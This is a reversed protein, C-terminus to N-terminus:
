DATQGNAPVVIGLDGLLVDHGAGGIIEDDGTGAIVIDNDAGVDITDNGGHVEDSDAGSNVEVFHWNEVIQADLDTDYTFQAEGIVDGNDGLVIDTGSGTQIVDDGNGAIVVDSGSGTNITDDGGFSSEKSSFKVGNRDVTAGTIVGLDGIVVDQGNGTTVEDEGLGGIILNNGASATINDNGAISTNLSSAELVYLTEDRTVSGVDGIILDNGAGSELVDNGAGGIIIDIASEGKIIDNGGKDVYTSVIDPAPNIGVTTGAPQINAHDGVLINNGVVGQQPSATITDSGSGGIVTNSGGAAIIIDDGDQNSHVSKISTYAASFTTQRIVEGHDGLIVDSGEGGNLTDAGAGGLIIDRGAGGMINDSTNSVSGTFENAQAIFEGLTKGGDAGDVYGNDGILVDLGDGGKITDSGAGGLVIDQGFGGDISDDGGVNGTAEAFTINSAGFGIEGLDAVITDNGHEGFVTDKGSGAIILDDGDGGRITDTGGSSNSSVMSNLDITGGDALIRDDGMGGYITDSGLGAIIIDDGSEGYLTNTGGLTTIRDDGRGGHITDNGIGTSIVDDGAEGHVTNNGSGTITITDDGDGGYIVYNGNGVVIQDNGIGGHITVNSSSSRTVMAASFANTTNFFVKDDGSGTDIDISVGGNFGEFNLVDDGAGSKIVIEDVNSFRQAKDGDKYFESYVLIDNGSQVIRFEENGDILEGVTRDGAYDGMNLTLKGNEVNGLSLKPEYNHSFDILTQKPLIAWSDGGIKEKGFLYNFYVDFYVDIGASIKGDIEFLYEPTETILQIFESARIKGDENPDTLDASFDANLYGEVGAKFLFLNVNADLAITANFWAEPKERGNEYDAIYFGDLIYKSNGSEIMKTFGSTDYGFALDFGLNVSFEVDASLGVKPVGPVKAGLTKEFSLAFSPFHWLFLDINSTDGSLLRLAMMPDTLIPLSLGYKSDSSSSESGSLAGALAPNEKSLSGYPDNANFDGGTLNALDFEHESMGGAFPDTDSGFDYTGFNITLDTKDELLEILTNVKNVMDIFKVASDFSPNAGSTMKGIDLLSTRGLIDSIGPVPSNIFDLVPRIPDLADDVFGIIPKLFGELFEGVDLTIDRLEFAEVTMVEHKEGYLVKSYTHDFFLNTSIAPLSVPLNDEFGADLMLNLVTEFQALVEVMHKQGKMEDFTMMGDDNGDNLDIGITGTLSTQVDASKNNSISAQLIGLSASLEPMDSFDAVIKLELENHDVLVGNVDRVDHLYFGNEISFGFGLAMSAIASVGITGDEVSLGLGPFGLDADLDIDTNFLEYDFDITFDVSKSEVNDNGTVTANWGLEDFQEQLVSAILTSTTPPIGPYNLKFEELEQWLAPVIANRLNSVFDGAGELASGIVPIEFGFVSDTLIKDLSAFFTDLGSILIEPNNLYNLEAFMSAFDPTQIDVEREGNDDVIDSINIVVDGVKVGAVYVPLIAQAGGSISTDVFTTDVESFESFFLLSDEDGETDPKDDTIGFKFELDNGDGAVVSFDESNAKDGEADDGSIVATGDRVEIELASLYTKFDLDTGNLEANIKLGTEATDLFFQDGTSEVTLTESSWQNGSAELQVLGLAHLIDTNSVGEILLAPEEAQIDAISMTAGNVLALKNWTQVDTSLSLEGNDSLSFELLQSWMIHANNSSGQTGDSYNFLGKNLERNVDEVWQSLSREPDAALQLEIRQGDVSISFQIADAPDFSNPLNDFNFTSPLTIDQPTEGLADLGDIVQPAVSNDTLTIQGNELSAVLDDSLDNIAEILVDLTATSVNLSDLDLSLQEGSKLTFKLDAQETKDTPLGQGDNLESLLTNGNAPTTSSTLKIGMLATLSSTLTLDLAGDAGIGVLSGVGELLKRVDPDDVGKLLEQLDVNLAVSQNFGALEYDLDLLIVPGSGQYDAAYRIDFADSPISLLKEIEAEVLDLAMDPNEKVQDVKEALDGTIDLVDKLSLDILPLATDYLGAGLLSDLTALITQLGEVMDSYSMSSLSGISDLGQFDYNVIPNSLQGDEWQPLEISANIGLKGLAVEVDGVAVVNDIVVDGLLGGEKGSFFDVSVLSESTGQNSAELLQNLNVRNDDDALVISSGLSLYGNLDAEVGLMGINAQIDVDNLEATVVASFGTDELFVRDGLDQGHLEGSYIKGKADASGNLGLVQAVLSDGNLLASFEANGLTMSSLGFAKASSSTFVRLLNGASDKESEVKLISDPTFVVRFENSDADRSVSIVDGWHISTANVSGSLDSQELGLDSIDLNLSDLAQNFADIFGNLDRDAKADIAIAVPTLSGIRLMFTSASSSSWSDAMQTAQLSGDEGIKLNVVSQYEDGFTGPKSSIPGDSVVPDLSNTIQSIVIKQLEPDYSASFAGDAAININSIVDQITDDGSVQVEILAGSPSVFTLEAGDGSAEIGESWIKLDKLATNFLDGAGEGIPNVDLGLTMDFVANTEINITGDSSIGTFDGLSLGDSFDQEVSVKPLSFSLDFKLANDEFRLNLSEAWAKIDEGSANAVDNGLAKAFAVVVDDISDVALHRQPDSIKIVKEDDVKQSSDTFKLRNNDKTVSLRDKLNTNKQISTHLAAVLADITTIEPAEETPYWEILERTGDSLTIVFSFNSSIAQLLTGSGDAQIEAGLLETNTSTYENSSEGEFGILDLVPVFADLLNTQLSERLSFLESLELDSLFPIDLDFADHDFITDIREVLSELAIYLTNADFLTLDSLQENMVIAADSLENTEATTVTISAEDPLALGNVLQDNDLSLKLDVIQQNEAYGFDAKILEQASLPSEPNFVLEQAPDDLGVSVTLTYDLEKDGDENLVGEGIKFDFLGLKILAGTLEASVGIDSNVSLDDFHNMSNQTNLVFDFSITHDISLNVDQAHTLKIGEGLSSLDLQFDDNDVLSFDFNVSILGDVKNLTINSTRTTEGDASSFVDNLFETYKAGPTIEQAEFDNKLKEVLTDSVISSYDLVNGLQGFFGDSDQDIFPLQISGSNVAELGEIQELFADFQDLQDRLSEHLANIDATTLTDASLLLRPEMAEFVITKKTATNKEIKQKKNMRRQKSSLIARVSSGMKNLHFINQIGLGVM